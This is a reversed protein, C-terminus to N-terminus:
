VNLRRPPASAASPTTLSRPRPPRPETEWWLGWERPRSESTGSSFFLFLPWTPVNGGIDKLPTRLKKNLFSVISVLIPSSSLLRLLSSITISYQNITEFPFNYRYNMKNITTWFWHKNVPIFCNFRFKKTLTSHCSEDFLKTMTM